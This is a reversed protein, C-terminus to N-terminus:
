GPPAVDFTLTAVPNEFEGLRVSVRVEWAGSTPLVVAGRYRGRSERALTVRGLDVVPGSGTSRVSVTPKYPPAFPEGSLSQM